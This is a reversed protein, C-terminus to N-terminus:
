RPTLTVKFIYQSAATETAQDTTDKVCSQIGGVIYGIVTPDAVFRDLALVGNRYAPLDDNPIFIAGAGFRLPVNSNVIPCQIDPYQNEMIYQTFQKNKDIKVTTVDNVFPFEDDFKLTDDEFYGYSIGGLLITYMDETDASFLEATASVYNNMAQKFTAPHNPDPMVSDGDASIFVPVTWIGTSETFVGSLAVYAPYPTSEGGLMVPIVNLDRRRFAPDPIPQAHTEAIYLDSGNDIIFFSRIQNTYNGNSGDTYLGTFNQGYILLVPQHPGLQYMVGGTVQVLPDTIQRVNQALTKGKDTSTVWEITGPINIASLVPKTEMLGSATNIGYGGTVYLTNGSQVFQPSTASLNDIQEQNLGSSSSDLEKQWIKGHSFDIVYVSLNQASPPFNNDNPNESFGHLGNTRGALLLTKGKWSGMVGSHWGNPLELDSLEINVRFPLTDPPLIPSVTSTQNDGFLVALPFLVISYFITKFM